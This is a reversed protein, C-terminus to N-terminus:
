THEYTMLKRGNGHGWHHDTIGTPYPVMEDLGLLASINQPATYLNEVLLTVMM